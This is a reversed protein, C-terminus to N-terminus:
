PHVHNLEHHFSFRVLSFHKNFKFYSFQKCKSNFQVKEFRVSSNRVTTISIKSFFIFFCVFNFKLYRISGFQESSFQITEFRVSSNKVSSFQKLETESSNTITWNKKNLKTWCNLKTKQNKKEVGVNWLNM